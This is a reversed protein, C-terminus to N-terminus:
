KRLAPTIPRYSGNRTLVPSPVQLKTYALTPLYEVLLWWWWESSIRTHTHTHTHTHKHTRLKLTQHLVELHLRFPCLLQEVALKPGFEFDEQKLSRLIAIVPM